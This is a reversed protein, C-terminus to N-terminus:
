PLVKQRVKKSRVGQQFGSVASASRSVAHRYRAQTGNDNSTAKKLVRTTNIPSQALYPSPNPPARDMPGVETVGEGTAVYATQAHQVM